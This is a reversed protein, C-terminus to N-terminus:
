MGRRGGVGLGEEHSMIQCWLTLTHQLIGLTSVEGAGRRWPGLKRLPQPLPAKPLVFWPVYELCCPSHYVGVNRKDLLAHIQFNTTFTTFLITLSM